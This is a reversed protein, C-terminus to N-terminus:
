APPCSAGPLERYTASSQKPKGASQLVRWGSKKAMALWSAKLPVVTQPQRLLGPPVGLM